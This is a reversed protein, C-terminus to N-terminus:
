HVGTYQIDVTIMNLFNFGRMRARNAILATDAAEDVKASIGGGGLQGTVGLQQIQAAITEILVVFDGFTQSFGFRVPLRTSRLAIV